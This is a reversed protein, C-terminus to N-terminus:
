REEVALFSLVFVNVREFAVMLSCPLLLHGFRSVTAAPQTQFNAPVTTQEGQL